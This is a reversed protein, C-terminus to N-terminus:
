LGGGRRAVFEDCIEVVLLTLGDEGGTARDTHQGARAGALGARDSAADRV